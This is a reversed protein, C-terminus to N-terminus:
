GYASPVPRWCCRSGRVAGMVLRHRVPDTVGHGGHPEGAVIFATAGGALLWLGSWGQRGLRERTLYRSLAMAFLLNTALLPEVLTVEGMGLAVAGLAMGATMCGIGASRRPMRALDLLLRLSLFNRMPARQAAGQQLVFGVGLCGAASVALLVMTM